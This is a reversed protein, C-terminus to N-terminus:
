LKSDSKAFIYKSIHSITTEPSKSLKKPLVSKLKMQVTRNTSIIVIPSLASYCSGFFVRADTLVLSLNSSKLISFLWIGNDLGFFFVYTAVLMVVANAAKTEANSRGDQKSRRISKLRRRHRYLIIVIYLSSLCMLGICFLDRVLATIANVLFDSYSSFIIFCFELNLVHATSNPYLGLSFSYTGFLYIMSNLCWFFMMVPLLIQTLKRKIISWFYSSPALLACQYCSLLSTMCISMARCVRYAFIIFNCGQQDSLRNAGLTSLSQPIGRILVVVLNIFALKCLIVDAPIFKGTFIRFHAFCALIILNGPIGIAELSLFGVAKLILLIDM